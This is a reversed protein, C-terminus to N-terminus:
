RERHRVEVRAQSKPKEALRRGPLPMPATPVTLVPDGLLFPEDDLRVGRERLKTHLEPLTEACYAAQVAEAQAGSAAQDDARVVATLLRTGDEPLRVLLGYGDRARFGVVAQTHTLLLSEFDEGVACGLETLAEAAADAVKQRHRALDEREVAQYVTDAVADLDAAGTILERLREQDASPADRVLELLRVRGDDLAAAARRRAISKSIIVAIELSLARARAVSGATVLEAFVGRASAIGDEDCRHGSGAILSEADAVAGRLASTDRDPESKSRALEDQASLGSVVTGSTAKGIEARWREQWAANVSEDAGALAVTVRDLLEQLEVSDAQETVRGKVEPIALGIRRAHARAAALRALASAVDGRLERRRRAEIDAATVYYGVSSSM